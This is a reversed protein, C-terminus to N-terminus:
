PALPSESSRQVPVPPDAHRGRLREGGDDQAHGQQHGDDLENASASQTLFISEEPKGGADDNENQANRRSYNLEQLTYEVDSVAGGQHQREPQEEGQHDQERM